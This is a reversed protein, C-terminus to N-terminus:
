RSAAADRKQRSADDRLLDRAIDRVKRNRTQSMQQLLEFAQGRSIEWRDVLMAKAQEISPDRGVATTLRLLDRERRPTSLGVDLLRTTRALCLGLVARNEPRLGRSRAKLRQAATRADDARAM